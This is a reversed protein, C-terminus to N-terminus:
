GVGGPLMRMVLRAIRPMAYMGAGDKDLHTDPLSVTTSLVM